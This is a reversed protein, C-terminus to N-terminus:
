ARTTSHSFASRSAISAPPPSILLVRPMTPNAELTVEAGPRLDWLEDVKAIVGEVQEGTMLSPTGGGLLNTLRARVPANM